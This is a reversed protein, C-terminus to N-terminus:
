VYIDSGETDDSEEITPDIEDIGQSGADGGKGATGSQCSRQVPAVNILHFGGSGSTGSGSTGSDGNNNNSSSSSSSNNTEYSHAVATAAPPYFSSYLFHYDTGNAWRRRQFLFEVFTYMPEYFFHAGNVWKTGMGSVKCVIDSLFRDEALIANAFVFDRISSFIAPGEAAATAPAAVHGRLSAEYASPIGYALFEKVKFCMCPGPLILLKRLFSMMDQLVMYTMEFEAGQLPAMSLLWAWFSKLRGGAVIISFLETSCLPKMASAFLLVRQRATVGILSPHDRLSQVLRALCYDGFVTGSDTLLMYAPCAATTFAGLFDFFRHHSDAKGANTRKVVYLVNSKTCFRSFFGDGNGFEIANGGRAADFTDQLIIQRHSNAGTLKIIGDLMVVTLARLGAQAANLRISDITQMVEPLTENYACVLTVVHWLSAPAALGVAHAWSADQIHQKFAATGCANKGAERASDAYDKVRQDDLPQARGGHRINLLLPECNDRKLAEDNIDCGCGNCSDVEHKEEGQGNRPEVDADRCTFRFCRRAMASISFVLFVLYPGFVVCVTFVKADGVSVNYVILSYIGNFILVISLAVFKHPTFRKCFRRTCDAGGAGYTGWGVDDANAVAFIPVLTFTFVATVTYLPLLAVSIALSILDGRLLTLALPSLLVILIVVLLGGTGQIYMYKVMSVLVGTTALFTALMGFSSTIDILRKGVAKPLCQFLVAVILYLVYVVLLFGKAFELYEYMTGNNSATANASTETNNYMTSINSATANALTETNNDYSSSSSVSLEVIQACHLAFHCMPVGLLSMFKSLMVMCAAWGFCSKHDPSQYRRHATAM